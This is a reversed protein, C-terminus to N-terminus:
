VYLAGILLIFILNLILLGFLFKRTNTDKIDFAVKRHPCRGQQWDCFPEIEKHCINCKNM